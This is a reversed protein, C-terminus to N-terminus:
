NVTITKSTLIQYGSGDVMVITITHQGPSTSLQQNFGHLNGIGSGFAQNVDARSATTYGSFVTSADIQVDYRMTVKSTSSPTYSGPNTTSVIWGIVQFKGGGIASIDDAVASYRNVGSTIVMAVNSRTTIGARNTAKLTVNYTGATTPTGTIKGTTDMSLGTPLGIAEVTVSTRSQVSIPESTYYSLGQQGPWIANADTASAAITPKAAIDVTYSKVDDGKTNHATVKFTYVGDATPRGSIVGSTEDLQLGTPLAGDTVKFTPAPNGTATITTNYDHETDGAPLLDQTIKAPATTDVVPPTTSSGGGVIGGACTGAGFRGTSSDFVYATTNATYTKAGTTYGCVTYTGDSAVSLGVTNSGTAVVKGGKTTYDTADTAVAGPNTALWTQVQTATNRVDSKVSADVALKRQDLFLPIAIAALIGIVIIVVLLEILTFGREDRRPLQTFM